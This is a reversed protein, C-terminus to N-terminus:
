FDSCLKVGYTFELFINSFGGTLQTNNNSVITIASKPNLSNSSINLVLLKSDGTVGSVIFNIPIQAIIVSGCKIDLTTIGNSNTVGGESYLSVSLAILQRYTTSLVPLLEIPSDTTSPDVTLRKTIAGNDVFELANAGDNVKVIKTAQSTYSSPVDSLGTFASPGGITDITDEVKESVTTGNYGIYRYGSPATTSDSLGNEKLVLKRAM